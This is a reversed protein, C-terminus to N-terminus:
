MCSFIPDSLHSTTIQFRHKVQYVRLFAHLSLYQAPHNLFFVKVGEKVEKRGKSREKRKWEQCEGNSAIVPRLAEM